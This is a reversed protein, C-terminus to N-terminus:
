PASEKPAAPATLVVTFTSGEGPTSQLSISGGHCQVADRVIALGLGTGSINGVNSARHFSEFLQPQDALPIGIGQDSVTIVLEGPRPRVRLTVQGGHPSYKIANSLLNGVINRILVEDVLYADTDRPLEMTMQIRRFPEAMASRLEDVLSKCFVAVQSPQPKFQLRGADSRGIVLVNELMHTMREVADDIKQLTLRKKDVPMRDDYHMLLDVSGHITALPTRFEHSAMTIFRSKLDNLEIQQQLARKQNQEADVRATADVVFLLTADRHGWQLLVASLDLTRVEGKDTIIRFSYMEEVPEGRLRRQHREVVAPVDDPHITGTFPMAMLAQTSHGVIREMSPNVFVMRGDQVVVVGVGVNEIVSRYRAESKRLEEIAQYREIAASVHNAFFGLINVDDEDYIVDPTYGQVVLVGGMRGRIQMPVGLWSSFTLDGTAEAMFGSKRLELFRHTDMLQPKGSELVFETMGRKYPVDDRQMVDGDKEDVYYPYDMLGRDHDHLAVYFNDAFMLERLLQHVVRLFDYFSLGATAREAIRYFVRQMAEARRQEEADHQLETTRRLLWQRAQIQQQNLLSRLTENDAQLERIQTQLSALLDPEPKTM